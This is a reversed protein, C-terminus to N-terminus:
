SSGDSEEGSGDREASRLTRIAALSFRTVHAALEAIKDNGKFTDPPLLRQLVHDSVRFFICQGVVSMAVARCAADSAQSGLLRRVVATLRDFDPRFYDEVLAACAATPELVERMLLRVQWPAGPEMLRRLLSEVFRALWQEPPLESEDPYPYAAERERRAHRVVELYLHEKDGFHYNIAAVNVGARECIERVTAGGLGKAAFIPGAAELLRARTGRGSSGVAAVTSVDFSSAMEQAGDRGSVPLGAM